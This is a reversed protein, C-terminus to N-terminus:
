LARREQNLYRIAQDHQELIHDETLHELECGCDYPNNRCVVEEDFCEMLLQNM